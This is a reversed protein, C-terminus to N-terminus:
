DESVTKTEYLSRTLFQIKIRKSIQSVANKILENKQYKLDTSTGLSLSRDFYNESRKPKYGDFGAITVEKKGLAAMIRLLMLTPNDSIIDNEGLYDAYNIWLANPYDTEINSTFIYIIDDRVPLRKARKENSCFVYNNPYIEPIVNIDFIVPDYKSIYANIADKFDVISKGPALVLVNKDQISSKLINLADSDDITEKQFLQYYHEALEDTYEIKVEEPLSQLLRGLSKNSLTNKNSYYSAYNPHCNYRASLYYPLSYGWYHDLFIPKLFEDMIELYADVNYSADYTNNLFSSFLETNLNGAGRGMGYVSSDIIIDHNLKQEAMYKANDYVQQLNNHGHYGIMIEPLLNHEVLFLLRQFDNLEIVGFSDVIYFCVPRISNVERILNIYEADSYGTAAMPQIFVSYGKEMLEKCYLLAGDKDKKHFCVRILPSDDKANEIHSIDQKGYDIMIAIRRMDCNEPLVKELMNMNNFQTRNINAPEQDSLYGCEIYDTGAKYLKESISRISEYGFDWNNIYGGDRLTCDLLHKNNM